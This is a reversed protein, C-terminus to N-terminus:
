SASCQRRRAVTVSKVISEGCTEGDWNMTIWLDGKEFFFAPPPRFAVFEHIKLALEPPFQLHNIIWSNARFSEERRKVLTEAENADDFSVIREGWLEHWHETTPNHKPNWGTAIHNAIFRISGTSAGSAIPIEYDHGVGNANEVFSHVTTFLKHSPKVDGHLGAATLSLVLDGKISRQRYNQIDPRGSESYAYVLDYVGVLEEPDPLSHAFTALQNLSLNHKKAPLFQPFEYRECGAARLRRIYEREEDVRDRGVNWTGLSNYEVMKMRCDVVVCHICKGKAKALQSPFFEAVPKMKKCGFCLKPKKRTADKTQPPKKDTSDVRKRKGTTHKKEAQSIEAATVGNEGRIKASLDRIKATSLTTEPGEKVAVFFCVTGNNLHYELKVPEKPHLLVQVHSAIAAPLSCTLLYEPNISVEMPEKVNVRVTQIEDKDQSTSSAALISRSGKEAGFYAGDKTIAIDCSNGELGSAICDLLFSPMYIASKYYSNPLMNVRNAVQDSIEIEIFIIFPDLCLSFSYGSCSSEPM